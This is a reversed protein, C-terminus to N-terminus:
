EIHMKHAVDHSFRSKSIRFIFACILQAVASALQDAGKNKTSLAIEKTELDPIELTQNNETASCTSTLTADPLFDLHCPKKAVIM